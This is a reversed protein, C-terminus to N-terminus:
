AEESAEFPLSRNNPRPESRDSDAFVREIDNASRVVEMALVSKTFGNYRDPKLFARIMQVCGAAVAALFLLGILKLLFV